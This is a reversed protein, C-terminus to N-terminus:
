DSTLSGVFDISAWCRGHRDNPMTLSSKSFVNGVFDSSLSKGYFLKRKIISCCHTLGDVDQIDLQAEKFAGHLVHGIMSTTSPADAATKSGKQVLAKAGVISVQRPMGAALNGAMRHFMRTRNVTALLSRILSIPEFALPLLRKNENRKANEIPVLCLYRV